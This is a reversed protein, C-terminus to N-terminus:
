AVRVTLTGEGAVELSEYLDSRGSCVGGFEEAERGEESPIVFGELRLIVSAELWLDLVGKRERVFGGLGDL